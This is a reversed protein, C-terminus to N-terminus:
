NACNVEVKNGVGVVNVIQQEKETTGGSNSGVSAAYCLLIALSLMGVATVERM